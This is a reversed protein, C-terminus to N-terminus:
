LGYDVLLGSYQSTAYPFALTKSPNKYEVITKDVYNMPNISARKAFSFVSNKFANLTQFVNEKNESNIAESLKQSDLSLLGTEDAEIGCASLSESMHRSISLTDNLLAKNTHAQSYRLGTDVMRNYGTLLSNVGQSLADSDNMLGITAPKTTPKHLTVEFAKNVTFTNSLSSHDVGNLKFSSNTAPSTIESIGLTNIERWSAGSQINFLREENASLGTAKSAIFLAGDGKSNIDIGATLGVDSNNILRVLKQQVDINTDNPGVNFQFEYSNNKIDLDFTYQGEEFAKANPQLYNGFNVQPKALSEIEIEFSESPAEDDGVYNTTISADDTSYAIKKQLISEIDNGNSTLDAISNYIANASEKIDIAFKGLDNTKSIKYLPSEKNAKIINNYTERLESKKHSNYRSDISDAYTTLFYDYASDIRAM